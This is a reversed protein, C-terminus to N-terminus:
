VRAGQERATRVAGEPLEARVGRKGTKVIFDFLLIFFRHSWMAEPCHKVKPFTPHYVM